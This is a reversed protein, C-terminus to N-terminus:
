RGVLRRSLIEILWDHFADVVIPRQSQKAARLSQKLGGRAELDILFRVEAKIDDALNPWYSILRAPDVSEDAPRSATAAPQEVPSSDDIATEAEALIEKLVEKTEINEEIIGRERALNKRKTEIQRALDALEMEQRNYQDISEPM